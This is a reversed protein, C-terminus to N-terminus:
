AAGQTFATEASGNHGSANVLQRFARIRADAVSKVTCDLLIACERDPYKELVSLVYVFRDFPLLTMIAAVTINAGPPKPVGSASETENRLPSILRIANKIVTRRAWSQAWERFVPNGQLCDELGSVFCQEAKRQDATLLLSLAYLRDLHHHFLQCFDAPVAYEMKMRGTKRLDTLEPGDGIREAPFNAKICRNLISLSCNM